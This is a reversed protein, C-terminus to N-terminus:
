NKWRAPQMKILLLADMLLFEVWLKEEGIFGPDITIKRTNVM